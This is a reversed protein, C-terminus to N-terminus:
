ETTQQPAKRLILLLVCTAYVGYKQSYNGLDWENFIKTYRIKKKALWGALNILKYM